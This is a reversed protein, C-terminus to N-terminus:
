TKEFHHWKGCLHFILVSSCAFHNKSHTSYARLQKTDRADNQLKEPNESCKLKKSTTGNAVCIFYSSAQVHLIIKPTLVILEFNNQTELMMKFNKPIKPASLNKRLPAMQWVSSIHPRKFM